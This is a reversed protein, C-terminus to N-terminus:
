ERLTTQVGFARKTYWGLLPGQLVISIFAVGLAMTTILSRAPVTDPLLAVLVISLAGRMGGLMAVNLWRTPLREGGIREVGLIPYVSAFRSAVVALYAVGILEMGQALQVVNTSLGIYLFALTNAIFVLIFWFARLVEASRGPVIGKIVADGFYLGTVAVAVLGSLGLSAAVAFSGYVAALTLMIQSMPDSAVRTLLRAGVAVALGVLVGGGFVTAFRAAAGFFDLQSSAFSTLVISFITLATADNFVAETEMLTALQSPVGARKFIELVTAVDTPAILAAFLFASYAPLSALRWLLLGVVVTAIAVGVTALLLSPRILERFERANINMMSEFLLPPLVLGVFLGGGVLRDYVLNVGLLSSVSSAALVLGFAVLVLTYPVRTRRSVVSAFLALGLFASIILEVSPV